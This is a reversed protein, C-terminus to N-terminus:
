AAHHNSAASVGLKHKSSQLFLRGHFHSLRAGNRQQSLCRCGSINQERQLLSGHVGNYRQRQNPGTLTSSRGDFVNGNPTMNNILAALSPIGYAKLAEDCGRKKTLEQALKISDTVTKLDDKGFAPFPNAGSNQPSVM